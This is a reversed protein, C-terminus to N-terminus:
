EFNSKASEEKWKDKKEKMQEFWAGDKPKADAYELNPMWYWKNRIKATWYADRFIDSGISYRFFVIGYDGSVSTEAVELTKLIEDRNAVKHAQVAQFRADDTLIDFVASIVQEPESTGLDEKWRPPNVRQLLSIAIAAISLIIAITPLITKM